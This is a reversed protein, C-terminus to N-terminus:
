NASDVVAEAMAKLNNVYDEALPDIAVVRGGISRSITEATAAPFQKQVFIIKIGESRCGRILEALQRPAPEKGEIEVAKQIMGYRAAFYGFAPHFVLMTKGKFPLLKQTLEEDLKNMESKIAELNSKVSDALEPKSAIIVKAMNDAMASARIPDLWFHPDLGMDHQHAEEHHHEHTEEHHHHGIMRIKEINEDSFAITLNPCIDKLRNIIAQEFPIGVTFFINARSLKSMQQPLPEYTHPSMGPGILVEVTGNNELLREAFYKQPLISVFVKLSESEAFLSTYSVLVFIATILINLTLRKM